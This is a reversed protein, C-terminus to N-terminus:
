VCCTLLSTVASNCWIWNTVPVSVRVERDDHFTQWIVECTSAWTKCVNMSEAKGFGHNLWRSIHFAM